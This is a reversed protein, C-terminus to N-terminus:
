DVHMNIVHTLPNKVKISFKSQSVKSVKM